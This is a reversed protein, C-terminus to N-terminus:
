VHLPIFGIPRGHELGHAALRGTRPFGVGLGALLYLQGNVAIHRHIDGLVIHRNEVDVEAVGGGGAFVTEVEKFQHGFAVGVARGKRGVPHIQGAWHKILDWGVAAQREGHANAAARHLVVIGLQANGSTRTTLKIPGDFNTNRALANVGFKVFLDFHIHMEQLRAAGHIDGEGQLTPYVGDTGAGVQEDGQAAVVGAVRVEFQDTHLEAASLAVPGPDVDGFYGFGVEAVHELDHFPISRGKFIPKILDAGHGLTEATGLVGADRLDDLAFDLTRWRFDDTGGFRGIAHEGAAVLDADHEVLRDAAVLDYM